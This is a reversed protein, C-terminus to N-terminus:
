GARISTGRWRNSADVVYTHPAGVQGAQERALETLDVNQRRLEAPEASARAADLLDNVLTSMRRVEQALLELSAPDVRGQNKVAARHLQQSQILM